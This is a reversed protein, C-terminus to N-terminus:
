LLWLCILPNVRDTLPILSWLHLSELWTPRLNLILSLPTPELIFLSSLTLHFSIYTHVYSTTLLGNSLNKYISGYSSNDKGETTFRLVLYTLWTQCKIGFTNYLGLKILYCVILSIRLEIGKDKRPNWGVRDLLLGTGEYITRTM